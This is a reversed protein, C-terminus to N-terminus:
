PALAERLAVPRLGRAALADLLRPLVELVLPAGRPSLASSGDHLLLIDGAALGRLLRALVPEADGARTDFGRRTWSVLELGLGHLVPDLLPSRLGAPARFCRPPTGALAALTAQAAGVERRIGGMGLLPFTLGHRRSHNEVEHGRRAIERLLEPHAAAREAICFFTARAGHADLIDLVRPTVVLDPGDDFTVAVEGRAAAAAPLRTMNPGLLTSRPWLGLAGLVAHNAAVAGLAWPWAPPAAALLLAAAGHLGLSGAVIPTPRWRERAAGREVRASM